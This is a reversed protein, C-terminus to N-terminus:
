PIITEVSSLSESYDSTSCGPTGNRDLTDSGSNGAINLSVLASCNIIEVLDANTSGDMTGHECEDQIRFTIAGSGAEIYVFPGDCTLTKMGTNGVAYVDCTDHCNITDNGNGPNIFAASGAGGTQVVITDASGLACLKDGADMDITDVGSTGQICKSVGDDAELKVGATVFQNVTCFSGPQWECTVAQGVSPLALVGVLVSGLLATYVPLCGRSLDTTAM